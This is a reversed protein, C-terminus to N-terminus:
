KLFIKQICGNIKIFYVGNQMATLDIREKAASLRGSATVKGSLDVISYPSGAPGTIVFV